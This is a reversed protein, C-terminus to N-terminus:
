YYERRSLLARSEMLSNFIDQIMQWEAATARAIQSKELKICTGSANELLKRIKQIDENCM